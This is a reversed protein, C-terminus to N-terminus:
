KTPPELGDRPAVLRALTDRVSLGLNNGPIPAVGIHSTSRVAHLLTYLRQCAQRACGQPSLNLESTKQIHGFGLFHQHDQPNQDLLCWPNTPPTFTYSVPYFRALTELDMSGLRLVDWVSNRMRVVTSELGIAQWSSTLIPLKKLAASLQSARTASLNGSTNASTLAIPHTTNKLLQKVAPHPSVRVGITPTNLIRALNNNRAQGIFTLPGPWLRELATHASKPIHILTAAHELSSALVAFPKSPDRGKITYLREVGEPTALGAVGFVTETPLVIPSTTLVSAADQPLLM